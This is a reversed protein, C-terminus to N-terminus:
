SRPIWYSGEKKEWNDTAPDYVEVTSLVKIGNGGGIVCIKGDVVATSATSRPTPMDAKPEWTDAAPDYVEVVASVTNPWKVLGGIIYIKGDVVAASALARPTPMDAKQMWEDRGPNYEEVTASLDRLAPHGGIAYIKGDVVCTTLLKRPTPMDAKRAWQDAEPNFEEVIPLFIWNGNKFVGGGIAYIKGNVESASFEARATPMDAKETWKGGGFAKIQNEPKPKQGFDGDGKESSLITIDTVEITDVPIVGVEPVQTKSPLASGIWQGIPYIPSHPVTLSLLAIILGTATSVGYPLSAKNPAGQM